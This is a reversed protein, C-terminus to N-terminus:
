GPYVVPPPTPNIKANTIQPQQITFHTTTNTSTDMPTPVPTPPAVLIEPHLPRGSMIPCTQARCLQNDYHPQALPGPNTNPPPEITIPVPDPHPDQYLQYYHTPSCEIPIPFHLDRPLEDLPYETTSIAKGDLNWSTETIIYNQSLHQWAGVRSVTDHRRLALIGALGTHEVSTLQYDSQSISKFWTRVITATNLNDTVPPHYRANPQSRLSLVLNQILTIAAPTGHCHNLQTNMSTFIDDRLSKHLKSQFTTDIFAQKIQESNLHAYLGGNGSMPLNRLRYLYPADPNAFLHPSPISTNTPTTYLDDAAITLDPPPNTTRKSNTVLTTPQRVPTAPHTIPPNLSRFDLSAAAM